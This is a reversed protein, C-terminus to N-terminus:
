NVKAKEEAAKAAAKAAKREKKIKYLEEDAALILDDPKMGCTCEALGISAKLEFPADKDQKESIIRQINECLENAEKRTGETIVMFEDGGYRAIYPRLRYSACAEKLAQAVLILANDGELHGYTDNIIKFDDLDIMLLFTRSEHTALKYELYTILNQRNNVQTLKDLSIQQRSTGVYLCLLEVMICVCVVPIQEGVQSVMWSILLSLPFSATLLMHAKRVPDSERFSRIFHRGSCLITLIMLSLMFWHYMGYRHYQGAADIEFLTHTWLNSIVMVTPVLFPLLFLVNVLLNAHLGTRLETEAYGCWFYTGLIFALFYLSKLTYLASNGWPTGSFFTQFLTFLLNTSFCLLFGSLMRIQWRESSSRSESRLSWILLLGVVVICIFYVEAYLVSTLVM